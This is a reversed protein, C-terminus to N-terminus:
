NPSIALSSESEAPKKASLPNDMIVVEESCSTSEEHSKLEQETQAPASPKGGLKPSLSATTDQPSPDKKITTLYATFKDRTRKDQRKGYLYGAILGGLLCGAVLVGFLPWGMPTSLLGFGVLVLIGTGLALGIAGGTGLGMLGFIKMFHTKPVILISTRLPAAERTKKGFRKM